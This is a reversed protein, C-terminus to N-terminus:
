AQALARGNCLVRRGDHANQAAGLGFRRKQDREGVDARRLVRMIAATDKAVAASQRLGSLLAAWETEPDNRLLRLLREPDAGALQWIYPASEAIGALTKAMAPHAAVLAALAEGSATRGISVLWEAVDARGQRSARPLAGAMGGALSALKVVTKKRKGSTPRRM